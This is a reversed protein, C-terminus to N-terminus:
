LLTSGVGILSAVAGLGTAIAFAGRYQASRLYSHILEDESRTSVLLTRGKATALEVGGGAAPRVTGSVYLEEGAVLALEVHHYGITSSGGGLEFRGIRLRAVGTGAAPPQMRDHLLRPEDIRAGRLAVEIAGTGDSVTLRATDSVETSVVEKARSRSRASRGQGDTSTTTKWYHHTISASYWLVQQGSFPGLLPTGAPGGVGSVEAERRLARTGLQATVAGAEDVLEGCPSPAISTLRAAERSSGVASRVLVASGALCLGALVLLLLVM